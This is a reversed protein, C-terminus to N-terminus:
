RSLAYLIGALSLAFSAIGLWPIHHQQPVYIEDGARLHMRDLSMGDALATHTDQASWIVDEGRRVMIGNVNAQQGPGGALMLVDSLPKDAPSYFYGPHGVDGLIGVRVLPTTHVLPDRVYQALHDRIKDTLESRLVGDLSLEGMRGLDIRRGARVVLTDPLQLNGALLSAQVNWWIKDGDQFDGKALRQRLLWAESTRHGAEASSAQTELESRSEYERRVTAASGAPSVGQGSLRNGAVGWALLGTVIGVRLVASSLM